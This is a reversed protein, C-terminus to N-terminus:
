ANQAERWESWFDNVHETVSVPEGLDRNGELHPFVCDNEALYASLSAKADSVCGYTGLIRMEGGSMFRKTKLVVSYEDGNALVEGYVTDNEATHLAIDTWDTM